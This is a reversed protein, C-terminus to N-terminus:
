EREVFLDYPNQAGSTYMGFHLHPPTGTANGSNGVFGLVTDPTIEDGVEIGSAVTHLHAYYYRVGGAGITAVFNGGLENEGVRWVYGSTASYVPTGRRVFIDIGEHTRGGARPAGYTDDIDEIPVARIPLLLTTDPPLQMLKGIKYPLAVQAAIDSLQIIIDEEHAIFTTISIYWSVISLLTLLGITIWKSPTMAMTM